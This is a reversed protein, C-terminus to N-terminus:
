LSGAKTFGEARAAIAQPAVGTVGQAQSVYGVAVAEVAQQRCMVARLVRAAVLEIAFAVAWGTKAAVVAQIWTHAVEVLGTV